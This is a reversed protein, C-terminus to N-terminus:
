SKGDILCQQRLYLLFFHRTSSTFKYAAVPHQLSFLNYQFHLCPDSSLLTQLLPKPLSQPGSVLCILSHTIQHLQFHCAASGHQIQIVSHTNIINSVSSLIILNTLPKLPIPQLLMILNYRSYVKDHIWPVEIVLITAEQHFEYIM